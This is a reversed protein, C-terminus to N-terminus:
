VMNKCRLCALGGPHVKRPALAMVVWTLKNCSFLGDVSNTMSEPDSIVRIDSFYRFVRFFGGFILDPCHILRICSVPAAEIEPYMSMGIKKLVFSPDTQM